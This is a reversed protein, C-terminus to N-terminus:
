RIVKKIKEERRGVGHAEYWHIEADGVTGDSFAVKAQGKCKIWKGKGHDRRLRDRELVSKGEAIKERNTIGSIITFNAVRENYSRSRPKM